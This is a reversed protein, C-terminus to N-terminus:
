CIARKIQYQQLHLKDRENSAKDNPAQINRDM